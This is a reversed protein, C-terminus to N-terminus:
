VLDYNKIATNFISLKNNYENTGKIYLLKNQPSWWKNIYATTWGDPSSTFGKSKVRNIMFRLFDDDNAFQAFERLRERDRKVFRGKIVNGASGWSGADTQVGAYNYGGASSFAKGNKSAEAWLIAFVIKATDQDTLAILKKKADAYSLINTPPPPDILPLNPYSSVVSNTNTTTTTSKVKINKKGEVALDIKGELQEATKLFIMSGKVSTTWQNNEITNTLGTIAFGVKNLNEKSLSKISQISRNNYTYPLFQDSVSFAQGMTMGAIGDITFNVSVPIISPARTADDDNKRDSMAKIYYNTAQNITGEALNDTSYYSGINSNFQIAANKLGDLTAEEVKKQRNAIEDKEEQSLEGKIPIYRDKYGTNIFGFSDGNQSLLAKDKVDSNASIAIMNALKTSVESRIELSKALSKKGVLPIETPDNPELIKDGSLPACIQDDVIHFTNAADNYALRLLNFNGLHKNIDLLLQELFPKLYVSNQGSKTSNDRIVEIVYDINLLINMLRGRYASNEIEDYKVKPLLASIADENEKNFLSTEITSGSVPLIATKNSNLIYDPFLKKYDDFSGEYPILIKFPNTSLHQKNSLFLNLDPNFDVYVLPTSQTKEKSSDYIACMHNLLMIVLGLPVYVPHNTSIGLAIEQSINYPLVYATLLKEFKVEYNKLQPINAKGSMFETAFGYKSQVKFLNSDTDQIQKSVLQGIFDSFVGQSFIQKYYPQTLGEVQSIPKTMEFPFVTKDIDKGLKLARNLAGIQITRLTLELGSQYRLAASIQDRTPNTDGSQEQVPPTQVQNQPAPDPQKVESTEIAAILYPDNFILKVEQNFKVTANEVTFPIPKGYADSYQKEPKRVRTNVDYVLTFAIEVGISTENKPNNLLTINLNKALNFATAPNAVKLNYSKNKDGLTEWLKVKLEDATIKKNAANGKEEPNQDQGVGYVSNIKNKELYDEDLYAKEEAVIRIGYGNKNQISIYSYDFTFTNSGIFPKQLKYNESVKSFVPLQPTINIVNNLKIQTDTADGLPLLGNINRIALVYGVNKGNQNDYNFTADESGAIKQKNSSYVVQYNVGSKKSYINLLDQLLFPPPKVPAAAPPNKKLEELRKIRAEEEALEQLTNNLQLIEDPLLSPLTTPVNIKISDGLVGLGMIKLQCDYGGEQNYSFTFNTVMGLMADYNGNSQLISKTIDLAIQEKTLSSRFPDISYTETSEVTNSSNPYFLTHGWELFMTFGLKFYLADIIDLQAKDWCKFNVIALRLSGLKGQTDVTVSTIGPMPRYGYQQIETDGLMGYSGDRGLGARQQYSNKNLYKSTGGFLVFQKALDEPNSISPGITNEKQFYTIDEASINVSSVLRVWASRNALFLINDNDRTDQSLKDSRKRLQDILWQPFKTGLINSIKTDYGSM